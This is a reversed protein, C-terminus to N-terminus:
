SLDEYVVLSRGVALAAERAESFSFDERAVAYYVAGHQECWAKVAARDAAYDRRSWKSMDWYDPFLHSLLHTVNIGLVERTPYVEFGWTTIPRAKLTEPLITM